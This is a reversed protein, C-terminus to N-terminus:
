AEHLYDGILAEFEQRHSLSLQSFCTSAYLNSRGKPKLTPADIEFSHTLLLTDMHEKDGFKTLCLKLDMCYPFPAM